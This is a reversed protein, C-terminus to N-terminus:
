PQTPEELLSRLEPVHPSTPFDRLFTSADTRIKDSQGIRSSTRILNFLNAERNESHPFCTELQQYAAIAGRLNGNKEHLYAIGTLKIAEPPNKGALEAELAAIENEPLSRAKADDLAAETAPVFSYLAFAARTMGVAVADGALKLFVRSYRHMLYPEMTLEGRNKGIFDLLAQENKQSIAATALAQFGAIVGEDPTPFLRQNRIAIELSENGEPIRGLRYHCVATSIYFVGRPFVDRLKDRELTFKRFRSIALEWDEAAMAAEGWKLLALKQFVNANEATAGDNPFDRYCIEFSRMAEDWRQLKMECIGKRYHIAGFQAGYNRLSDKGGFRAVAATNSALAEQWREAEMAAHARNVLTELDEDQAVSPLAMALAALMALFSFIGRRNMLHFDSEM